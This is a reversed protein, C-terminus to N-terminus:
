KMLNPNEMLDEMSCGLAVALKYLSHAQAKDIDNNKQEYMQISRLSVGSKEALERQSLGAAERVKKLKSDPLPQMMKEDLAEYFRTIDMEHFLPYMDVIESMRVREFIDEFRYGSYWQYSALAWGAWYEPTKDFPQVAEIVIDEKYVAYVINRTLEVGSMGSVVAPNGTEFKKAYGSKLFLEVLWEIKYKCDNVAYDFMTGLSKKADSLYLENYAHTM